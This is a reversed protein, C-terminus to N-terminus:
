FQFYIFPRPQGRSIFLAIVLLYYFTWRLPRAWGLATRHLAHPQERGVWEVALFIVLWLAFPGPQWDPLSWLSPSFIGKIMQWGSALTLSRFFIWGLVTLGFTSLMAALEGPSPLSRGRAVPGLHRRNTKMLVLPLVCCGNFLGWVLFTWNAGHWLGSVAFIVLLNRTVMWRSGRSGGMPIYLYDRFWSSLSIHWRRWFEAMDRSFYPFAFNRLLDFGFLRGTGIAIDSYGSFDGYIQFAFLVAALLLTSGGAAAPNDFVRNVFPACSDAIVMKKFLGWLMQRLGDTARSYDFTRQRRVQPLLHTAREIPGAVLLPFFSVFLGYTVLNPEPATKHHYVDLVYSLGHFTYFSIGLPLIFSLVPLPSEMGLASLLSAMSEAFFHYYKFVGLLGLNIFLSVLLWAKRLSPSGALYIRRATFYDLLTSFLLLGLFRVDWCGYFYYSAVLLLANQWQRKQPAVFWYLLFVVPLFVAFGLSNFLMHVIKSIGTNLWATPWRFRAALLISIQGSFGNIKDLGLGLQSPFGSLAM